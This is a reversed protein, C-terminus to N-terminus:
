VSANQHRVFNTQNKGLYEAFAVLHDAVTAVQSQRRQLVVCICTRQPARLQKAVPVFLELLAVMAGAVLGNEEIAPVSAVRLAMFAACM